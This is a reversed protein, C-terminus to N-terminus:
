RSSVAVANSRRLVLRRAATALGLLAVSVLAGEAATLAPNALEGNVSLAAYHAFHVAPGALSAAFAARPDVDDVFIGFAVPALSAAVLGYIGVQAFLGVLRPPDIALLVALVGMGVLVARSAHLAAKQRAEPTADKMWRTSAIREFLDSGAITSASVLIGDMTSMGAAILAVSILVGVIPSFARGIYQAIVTDQSEIGPMEVRAYLGVVLVLAFVLGVVSAVVLYLTVDRDRKLYLSKILIHPQCVLGFGVVFPAGFVEWSNSFLPSNPNTASVLAPDQAAIRDLFPGVGDGLLHLGSGLLALAVIAMMIGQAVNTYAHAYTGGMMIYSFVFLVVVFVAVLYDLGLTFQMVLASGKVILVVFSIALLLNLVAFYTRMGGHGYRAGLWHPLTLAGNAAGRKRFGMSLVVLGLTVGATAAVGFHMLAAVGHAYVFGPNIVFTASSAVSAALTIGVLVPGMDRNGLAFSALDKTRRMGLWALWTTVAVYAGFAIWGITTRDM